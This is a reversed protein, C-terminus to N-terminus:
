TKLADIPSGRRTGVTRQRRILNVLAELAWVVQPSRTIIRPTHCTNDLAVGASTM